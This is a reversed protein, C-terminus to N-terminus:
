RVGQRLCLQWSNGRRNSIRRIMIPKSHMPPPVAATCPNNRQCCIIRAVLAFCSGCYLRKTSPLWMTDHRGVGFDTDMDPRPSTWGNGGRIECDRAALFFVSQCLRLSRRMDVCKCIGCAGPGSIIEIAYGGIVSSSIGRGILAIDRHSSGTAAGRVVVHRRIYPNCGVDSCASEEELKPAM